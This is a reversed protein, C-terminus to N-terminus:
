SRRPTRSREIAPGFASCTFLIADAGTGKAYTALDVFRDIMAHTLEGDRERDRSLSDDLVNMLQADPCHQAFAAAIPDISLRTAHILAIRPM